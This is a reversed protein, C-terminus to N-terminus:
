QVPFGDTHVLVANLGFGYLLIVGILGNFASLSMEGGYSSGRDFQGYSHSGNSVNKM